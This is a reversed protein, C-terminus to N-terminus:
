ITAARPQQPERAVSGPRAARGRGGQGQRARLSWIVGASARLGPPADGRAPARHHRRSEVSADFVTEVVIATSATSCAAGSQRQRAAKTGLRGRLAPSRSAAAARAAGAGAGAHGRRQVAAHGLVAGARRGGGARSRGSAADAAENGIRCACYDAKFLAVVHVMNARGPPAMPRTRTEAKHIIKQWGEIQRWGQQSGCTEALGLAPGM